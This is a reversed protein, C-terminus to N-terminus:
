SVTKIHQLFRHSPGELSNAISMIINGIYKFTIISTCKSTITIKDSDLVTILLIVVPWWVPWSYNIASTCSNVVLLITEEQPLPEVCLSIVVSWNVVLSCQEVIPVRTEWDHIHTIIIILIKIHSISRHCYRHRCFCFCCCCCQFQWSCGHTPPLRYSKGPDASKSSSSSISRSMSSLLLLLRDLTPPQRLDLAKWRRDVDLRRGHHTQWQDRWYQERDPLPPVDDVSDDSFMVIMLMVTEDDTWPPSGTTRDPWSAVWASTIVCIFKIAIVVASAKSSYSKQHCIM